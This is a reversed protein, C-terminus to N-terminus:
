ENLGANGIVSSEVFSIQLSVLECWTCVHRTHNAKARKTSTGLINDWVKLKGGIFQIVTMKDFTSERLRERVGVVNRNALQM